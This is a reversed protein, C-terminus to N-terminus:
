CKYDIVNGRNVLMNPDLCLKSHRVQNVANQGYCDIFDHKKRKGTGHEASYVGNLDTSIKIIKQYIKLAIDKQKESPILHFHLHCDGLHGFLVYEINSITFINPELHLNKFDLGPSLNPDIINFM